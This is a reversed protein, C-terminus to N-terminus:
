DYWYSFLKTSIWVFSNKSLTQDYLVYLKYLLKIFYHRLKGLNRWVKAYAAYNAVGCRNRGKILRMYGGEGWQAGWWNKLIWYHPSYGVLLMAHNVRDSTCTSDDYIGRSKACFISSINLQFPLSNVIETKHISVSIISFNEPQCKHFRCDPRDDGGRSGTGKRRPRAFDGLVHYKCRELAQQIPLSRAPSM